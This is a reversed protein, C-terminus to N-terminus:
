GLPLEYEVVTAGLRALRSVAMPLDLSGEDTEGLVDHEDRRIETAPVVDEASLAGTQRGCARCECV